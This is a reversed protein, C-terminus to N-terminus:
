FVLAGFKIQGTKIRNQIDKRAEIRTVTTAGVYSICSASAILQVNHSIAINIKYISVNGGEAREERMRDLGILEGEDMM